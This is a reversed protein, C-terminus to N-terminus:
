ESSRRLQDLMEFGDWYSRSSIILGDRVIYVAMYPFAIANGTAPVEGRSGVASLPGIHTAEYVAELVIVDDSEVFREVRVHGVDFAGATVDWWAAVADRGKGPRRPVTFECDEAFCAVFGARDHDNWCTLAREVVAKATM